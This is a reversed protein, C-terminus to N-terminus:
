YWRGAAKALNSRGQADFLASKGIGEALSREEERKCMNSLKACMVSCEVIKPACRRCQCADILGDAEDRASLIHHVTM